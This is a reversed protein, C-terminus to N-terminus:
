GSCEIPYRKYREPSRPVTFQCMRRYYKEAGPHLPVGIGELGNLSSDLRIVQGKSHSDMIMKRGYDQWMARM